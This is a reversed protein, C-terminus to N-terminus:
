RCPARLAQATPSAIDEHIPAITHFGCTLQNVFPQILISAEHGIIHAGLIYNTKKDIVLKVFGDDDDGPELGMAYGKASASYHNVVIEIDYGKKRADAESLASTPQKPIPLPSPLSSTTIFGAGSNPRYTPSLNHSLIEAEHNAKHRFPAQGNVDGIAWIGEASTEFNM